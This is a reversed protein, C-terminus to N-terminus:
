VHARGIEDGREGRGIAAVSDPVKSQEVPELSAAEVVGAELIKAFWQGADIPRHRGETGPRRKRSFRRMM